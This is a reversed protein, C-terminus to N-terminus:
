RFWYCGVVDCAPSREDRVHDLPNDDAARERQEHCIEEDVGLDTGHQRGDIAPAGNQFAALGVIAIGQRDSEELQRVRARLTEIALLADRKFDIM